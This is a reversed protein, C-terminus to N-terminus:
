LASTVEIEAYRRVRLEREDLPYDGITGNRADRLVADLFCVKLSEGLYLVGFRADPVRRRPDSFRSPTKGYGLPDPYREFFIRSFRAGVGVTTLQLTATAFAPTPRVAAVV